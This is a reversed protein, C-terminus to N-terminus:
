MGVDRCAVGRVRERERGERKREKTGRATPDRNLTAGVYSFQWGQATQQHRCLNNKFDYRRKTKKEKKGKGGGEGEKTGKEEEKERERERGERKREKEGRATLDRNLTAGVNFYQGKGKDAKAKRM